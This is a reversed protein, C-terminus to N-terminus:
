VGEKLLDVVTDCTMSAIRKVYAEDKFNEMGCIQLLELYDYDYVGYSTFRLYEDIAAERDSQSKEWIDLATLASTAYSIYYLPASFSHNVYMWDYDHAGAEYEEGYSKRIEMYQTNLEDISADTHAYAYQQFEDQICGEIINNLFQTLHKARLLSAKKEGFIEDYYEDYLLELGQSNVEAIDYNLTDVLVNKGPAYHASLFHGFEHVSDSLTRANGKYCMNYIFPENYSPLETTFGQDLKKPDDTFDCLHYRRMYRYADYVESSIHKAYKGVYRLVNDASIDYDNGDLVLLPQDNIQTYYKPGLVSKVATEFTQADEKTYDRYFIEQYAYETYNDYGALDALESRIAILEQYIGGAVLNLEKEISNYITVIKNEDLKDQEEHLREITWSEGDVIASVDLNLMLQEYDTILEQEEMVLQQERESLDEYLLFERADEAGLHARLSAGNTSKLADRIAKAAADSAKVYSELSYNNENEIERDNPNQTYLINALSQMTSLKTTESMIEDYAKILEKGKNKEKALATFDDIKDLLTQLDYHEYKMSSFDIKGYEKYAFIHTDNKTGCATLLVCVALMLAFLRLRKLREGTM